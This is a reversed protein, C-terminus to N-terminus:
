DLARERPARVLLAHGLASVFMVVAAAFFMLRYQGDFVSEFLWLGALPAFLGRLGTLSTHVGSYLGEDGPRAFYLSGISWSVGGGARGLGIAVAAVVGLWFVEAFAWVIFGAGILTSAFARHAVVGVRDFLGGHFRVSLLVAAQEIAGGSVVLVALDVALGLEEKVYVALLPVTALNAFGLLMQFLQFRRFMRDEVLVSLLSMLSRRKTRMGAVEKMRTFRWVALLVFLGALPFVVGTAGPLRELLGGLALLGILGALGHLMRTVSVIRGRMEAPYIHSYTASILPLGLANFGQAVTTMVALPLAGEWVDLAYLGVSFLCLAALGDSLVLLRAPSVRTGLQVYGLSFILGLFSGAHMWAAHRSDGGMGLVLQVAIAVCLGQLMSRTAAMQADRYFASRQPKPVVLRDILSM